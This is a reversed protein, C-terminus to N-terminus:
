PELIMPTTKPKGVRVAHLGKLVREYAFQDSSDLLFGFFFAVVDHEDASFVDLIYHVNSGFPVYFTEDDETIVFILVASSERLSFCFFHDM